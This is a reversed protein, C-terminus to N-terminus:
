RSFREHLPTGVNLIKLFKPSEPYAQTDQSPGRNLFSGLNPTSTVLM